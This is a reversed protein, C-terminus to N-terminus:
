WRTHFRRTEAKFQKHRGGTLQDLLAHFNPGHNKHVTHCLEHLIIYDILHDPLRMLHLSLSIDNRVSCSGWKSVTNRVTVSRYILNNDRALEEVRRPLLEKAERRWAEELGKKIAQQMAADEVTLAEPYEVKIIGGRVSVRITSRDSPALQLTHSRTSLPERLLPPAPRSRWKELTREVWERKSDLFALGESLATRRPLTLRVTCDPRVMITM